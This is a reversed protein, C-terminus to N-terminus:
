SARRIQPLVEVQGPEQLETPLGKVRIQQSVVREYAQALTAPSLRNPEFSRKVIWRRLHARQKSM